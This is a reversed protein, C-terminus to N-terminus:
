SDGRIRGFNGPSKVKSLNGNRLFRSLKNDEKCEKVYRNWQAQTPPPINLTIKRFQIPSGQEFELLIVNTDQSIERAVDGRSIAGPNLVLIRDRIEIKYYHSHGFLVAAIKLNVKALEPCEHSALINTGGAQRLTRLRSRTLKEGFHIPVIRVGANLLEIETQTAFDMGHALKSIPDHGKERAMLDHNGLVILVQAGCSNIKLLWNRLRVIPWRIEPLREKSPFYAPVDFVDGLLVLVKIKESRVVALCQNLKRFVCDYYFKRKFRLVYPTIHMDGLVLLKIKQARDMETIM